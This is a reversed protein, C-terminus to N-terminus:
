SALVYGEKTLHKAILRIAAAPLLRGEPAQNMMWQQAYDDYYAVPMTDTYHLEALQPGVVNLLKAYSEKPITLGAKNLEGFTHYWTETNSVVNVANNAGQRIIQEAEAVVSGRISLSGSDVRAIDAATANHYEGSVVNSADTHAVDSSTGTHVNAIDAATANHYDGSVVRSVDTHHVELISADTHNLANAIDAATANEYNGTVVKSIDTHHNLANPSLSHGNSHAQFLRQLDEGVGSRWNAEGPASIRVDHGFLYTDNSIGHVNIIGNKGHEELIIGYIKSADKLSIDKYGLHEAYQYIERILGSGKEVTFDTPKILEADTHSDLLSADTHGHPSDVLSADTHGAEVLSADTHSPKLLSADTHGHESQLLSADTHGPKLLSADTHGGHVVSADTHGSLTEAHASPVFGWHGEAIAWGAAAGVAVSGAGWAFAIRQKTQEKKGDANFMEKSEQQLAIQFGADDLDEYGIKELMTDATVNHQDIGGKHHTFYGRAFRGAAVIGTGITAAGLVGGLMSGAIGVGVGLAIGKLMRMRPSGSNLFESFAHAFRWTKTGEVTKKTEERLINQENLWYEATILRRQVPDDEVALADALDLKQCEVVLEQYRDRTDNYGHIKMDFLRRQRKASLAAWDRRAADLQDHIMEPSASFEGGTTRTDYATISAPSASEVSKEM